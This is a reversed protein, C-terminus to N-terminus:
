KSSWRNCGFDGLNPTTGYEYDYVPCNHSDQLNCNECTRSNVADLVRDIDRHLATRGYKRGANEPMEDIWKPVLNHIAEATM